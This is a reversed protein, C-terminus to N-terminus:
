DPTNTIQDNPALPKAIQPETSRLKKSNGSPKLEEGSRRHKRQKFQEVQARAYNMLNTAMKKVEEEEELEEPDQSYFYKIVEIAQEQIRLPSDHETEQESAAEELGALYQPTNVATINQLRTRESKQKAETFQEQWDKKADIESIDIATDLLHRSDKALFNNEKIYNKLTNILYIEIGRHSLKSQLTERFGKQISAIRDESVSINELEVLIIYPHIYDGNAHADATEAVYLKKIGLKKAEELIQASKEKLEESTFM